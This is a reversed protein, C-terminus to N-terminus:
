DGQPSRMLFRRYYALAAEEIADRHCRGTPYERKKGGSEVEIRSFRELADTDGMSALNVVPQKYIFGRAGYVLPLDNFNIVRLEVQHEDDDAELTAEFGEGALRDRVAELAPRIHERLCVDLETEPDAGPGALSRIGPLLRERLRRWWGM